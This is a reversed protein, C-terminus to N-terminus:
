HSPQLWALLDEMLRSNDGAVLTTVKWTGIIAVKGRGSRFAVLVVPATAKTKTWREITPRMGNPDKPGDPQWVTATSNARMVFEPKPNMRTIDLPASSLFVVGKANPLAPTSPITVRVGLREDTSFVQQRANLETAGKPLVLAEQFSVGWQLAIKSPNGGHHTDAAYYGLLLLGGGREVWTRLDNAESDSWLQKYPPAIILVGPLEKAVFPDQVMKIVPNM